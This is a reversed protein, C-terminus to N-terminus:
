KVVAKRVKVTGDSMTQKVIMVGRQPTSIRTGNLNYYEYRATQGNSFAADIGTVPKSSNAGFYTLKWSDWICWNGDEQVEKKLGIRVTGPETIKFTLSQAFKGEAFKSAVPIMGNIIRVGTASTSDEAAVPETMWSWMWENGATLDDGAVFQGDKVTHSTYEESGDSALRPMPVTTEEDGIKVYLLLNNNEEPNATYTEYEKDAFGFRYFGQAGVTYTGAAPLDIDQYENFNANYVEILGSNFGPNADLTWGTNTGDDYSPNQIITTVDMPNEDDAKEMGDPIGLKKIMQDIAEIAENANDDTWEVAEPALAIVNEYISNVLINAEQITEMSAISTPIATNLREYATNLNVFITESSRVTDGVTFLDTLADFMDQGKEFERAAVAAALKEDIINRVNKGILLKKFKEVNAIEEDLVGLVIDRQFGRYTLRFDDWIAWCSTGLSGKIGVRMEDGAKAVLGFASSVYYGKDFVDQSTSMGNPVWLSEGNENVLSDGNAELLAYPTPGYIHEDSLDFDSLPFKYDYCNKLPTQKGNMYVFATAEPAGNDRYAPWAADNSGNRFFGKLSIEYVGLPADKVVQYFDFNKKEYAEACSHAIDTITSRGTWGTDDNTSFDPNVLYSTVDAGDKPARVAKDIATEIEDCLAQLEENTLIRANLNDALDMEYDGLPERALENYDENAAVEKARLCLEEYKKWLNMNLEFAAATEQAAAIAAKIADKGTATALAAKAENYADLYSQTFVTNEDLNSYDPLTAAITTAALAYADDGNGLYTLSFDDFISWDGGITKDKRVGIKLQENSVVTLVSNDNCYGASFFADAAVMNDPIYYTIGTEEDTASSWNGAAMKETLAATYPSAISNVLSDSGTVAFIKAYKSAENNAKYNAYAPEANGARYFAHVNVRYIGEKLGTLQQWTNYTKNYHEANDKPNYGGFADGSWGDYKNGDFSPNKIFLSTVDVPNEVTANEYGEQAMEQERKTIAEEASKIAANLEELSSDENLYVAEEASVNAGIEKAKDILAKLPLAAEYLELLPSITEYDEVTVFTWDVHINDGPTLFPSLATTASGSLDLGVYQGEIKTLGGTFTQSKDPIKTPVVSSASLRFTNNAGEEVEWGTNKDTQGGLDVFMATESDFFVYFWGNNRYDTFLYTKGDWETGDTVSKIFKVKLGSYGTSAQTGWANGQTFFQDAGVNYLYYETDAQFALTKAPKPQQRVGDKIEAKAVGSGCLLLAGLVLLKTFKM